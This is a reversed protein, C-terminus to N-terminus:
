LYCKEGTSMQLKWTGDTSKAFLSHCLLPFPDFFPVNLNVVWEGFWILLDKWIHWRKNLNLNGNRTYICFNIFEKQGIWNQKFILGHIYKKPKFLHGKQHYTQKGFPMYTKRSRSKWYSTGCCGKNRWPSSREELPQFTKWRKLRLM